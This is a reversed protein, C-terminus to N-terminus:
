KPAWGKHVMCDEFIVQRMRKVTGGRLSDDDVKAALAAVAGYRGGTFQEASTIDTDDATRECERKDAALNAGPRPQWATQPESACACLAACLAAVATLRPMLM